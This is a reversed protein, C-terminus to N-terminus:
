AMEEAIAPLRVYFMAGHPEVARMGITGKHSEVLTRSTALGLGTGNRKTTSFPEFLRGSLEAAVGPGNDIVRIEVENTATGETVIEVERNGPLNVALAEFSNRVLSIVVQQILVCDASVPPLGSSLCFRLRTDNLRADAQLLVEIEGLVSNINTPRLEGREPRVLRRLRRIIEGARLGEAAIERLSERLDGDDASEMDLYRECAHAYTTIATLPQNLEHAVGATLEGLTAFRGVRTLREQTLLIQEANRHRDTVDQGSCLWGAPAGEATRRALCRWHVRRPLNAASCVDFERERSSGNLLACELLKLARERELDGAVFELWDRGHLDIDPAGLLQRGPANIEIIRRHEDLMLLISDNLELYANAKDRQSQLDAMAAQELSVDRLIGVFRPPSSASIRGVSLHAPFLSGDKRLATVNRGIGIIRAEDTRLYDALYTDHTTRQSEPMLKGVNEGLLEDARYGFMSSTAHNAAAISGDHDIVIIADVAAEMLAHTERSFM